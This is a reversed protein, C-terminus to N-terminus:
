GGKTNSWALTNGSEFDDEFIELNDCVGDGDSDGSGNDGFCLDCLDGVGDGDV